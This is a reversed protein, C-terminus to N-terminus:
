DGTRPSKMNKEGYKNFYLIRDLDIKLRRTKPKELEYGIPFIADVTVEKPIHLIEKIQDEVFYGVWCTSLGSETVKLLFNEIGAGAQQNIWKKADEGYMNSPRSPNSCAVVVFKTESIFDQQCIKSIKKIKEEEDVIIFKLTYNNGAMPAFRAADICEIIKRWNPKKKSFKRVSRREQIAKNLEM